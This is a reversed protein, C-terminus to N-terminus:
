QGQSFFSTNDEQIIQIFETELIAVTDNWVMYEAYALTTLALAVVLVKLVKEKTPALLKILVKATFMDIIVIGIVGGVFWSLITLM